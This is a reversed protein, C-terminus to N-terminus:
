KEVKGSCHTVGMQKQRSSYYSIYSTSERIRRKNGEKEQPENSCGKGFQNLM